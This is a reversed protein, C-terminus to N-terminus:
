SLPGARVEPINHSVNDIALAINRLVKHIVKVAADKEKADIVTATFSINPNFFRDNESNVKLVSNEALDWDTDNGNQIEYVDLNFSISHEDIPLTSNNQYSTNLDLQLKNEESLTRRISTANTLSYYTIKLKGAGEEKVKINDVGIDQLQKKVIAITNQAEYSTLTVDTFQLVIEQNPLTNQQQYVVGLFTLVIILAGIYKRTNM